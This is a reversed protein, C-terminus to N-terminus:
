PSFAVRIDRSRWFIWTSSTLCLKQHGNILIQPDSDYTTRVPTTRGTLAPHFIGMEGTSFEGDRFIM